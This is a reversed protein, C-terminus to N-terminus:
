KKIIFDVNQPEIKVIKTFAPMRTLKVPLASYHRDSWLALDATAEFFDEDLENYRSLSTTFTVKVKQPFIKVGYYHVNGILRVPIELTKETYEEVPVTVQVVKPYVALNAAHVHELNVKTTMNESVDGMKLSDSKWETIKGIVNEPGSLTVYSPRITINGSMAFQPMFRMSYQLKVPVRKIARNTFDFYLTDPDFDIIKQDPEKRMNIRDLQTNVAIFNKSELTHLDITVRENVPRMKSFLMKWGSGQMTVDVTDSQLSRFARRRPTNTYVLLRQVKYTYVGQLTSLLWALGALVLCTLFASLRRRETASLKIIAM